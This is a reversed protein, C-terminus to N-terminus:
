FCVHEACFGIDAKGGFASMRLCSRCRRETGFRANTLDRIVHGLLLSEHGANHMIMAFTAAILTAYVHYVFSWFRRLGLDNRGSLVCRSHAGENIRAAGLPNIDSSAEGFFLVLHFRVVPPGFFTKANRKQSRRLLIMKSFPLKAM